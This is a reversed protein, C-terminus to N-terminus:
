RAAAFPQIPPPPLRALPCIAPIAFPPPPMKENMSMLMSQAACGAFPMLARLAADRCRFYHQPAPRMAAMCVPLFRVAGPSAAHRRLRTAHRLRCCRPMEGAGHSARCARRRAGASMMAACRRTMAPAERPRAGCPKAGYRRAAGRRRAERKARRLMASMLRSARRARFISLLLLTASAHRAPMAYAAAAHRM